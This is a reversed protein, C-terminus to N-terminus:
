PWWSFLTSTKLAIMPHPPKRRINRDFSGPPDCPSKEV